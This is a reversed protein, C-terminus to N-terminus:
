DFNGKVQMHAYGTHHHHYSSVAHRVSPLPYRAGALRRDAGRDGISKACRKQIRIIKVAFGRDGFERVAYRKRVLVTQRPQRADCVCRM